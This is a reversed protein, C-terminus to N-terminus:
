MVRSRLPPNICCYSCGECDSSFRNASALVHSCSFYRVDVTLQALRSPHKLARNQLKM